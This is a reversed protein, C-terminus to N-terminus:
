GLIISQFYLLSFLLISSSDDVCIVCNKKETVRTLNLFESPFSLRRLLTFNKGFILVFDTREVVV